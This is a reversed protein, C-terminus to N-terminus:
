CVLCKSVEGYDAWMPNNGIACFASEFGFPEAMAGTSVFDPTLSIGQNLALRVRATAKSFCARKGLNVLSMFRSAVGIASMTHACGLKIANPCRHSITASIGGGQHKVIVSATSNSDAFFPVGKFWEAVPCKSIAVLFGQGKFAFIVVAIIAWFIAAPNWASVLVSVGAAVDKYLWALRDTFEALFM